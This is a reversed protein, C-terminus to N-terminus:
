VDIVVSLTSERLSLWLRGSRGRRYALRLILLMVIAGVTAGIIAPFKPHPM